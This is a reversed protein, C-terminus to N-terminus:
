HLSFSALRSLQCLGNELVHAAQRMHFVVIDKMDMATDAYRHDRRIFKIVVLQECLRVYGTTLGLNITSIPQLEVAHGFALGLLHNGVNTPDAFKRSAISLSRTRAGSELWDHM